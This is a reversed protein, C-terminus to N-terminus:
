EVESTNVKESTVEESVQKTETVPKKKVAVEEKVYPTKTVEVEEKKLPITVDERSSVPKQAETQGSPPRREITVEENTVPVEVTKTETIPEKTITAQSESTKKSVDLKEETLQITSEEEAGRNEQIQEDGIDASTSSSSSSSSSPFSDGSYKNKMDDETFRFRLVDGDYSEAQDQPIYFKEKNIIGRQVLVYGNSIEQVEGLDEDNSGRAEKKIVDNWDISSSMDKINLVYYLYTWNKEFTKLDKNHYYISHKM